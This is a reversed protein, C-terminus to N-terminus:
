RGRKRLDEAIWAWIKKVEKQGSGWSLASGGSKEIAVTAVTGGGQREELLLGINYGWSWATAGVHFRVIRQEPDKAEVKHHLMLVRLASAYVADPSDAFTATTWDDAARAPAALLTVLSLLILCRTM